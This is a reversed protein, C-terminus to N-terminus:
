RSQASPPPVEMPLGQSNGGRGVELEFPVGKGQLHRYMGAVHAMARGYKAAARMIQEADMVLKRDDLEVTKDRYQQLLDHRSSALDEWPLAGVKQEIETPSADHAADDVYEGPDITFFSFAAQVCADIDAPTKLHDADAGVPQQWGAEFTGWTANRMVDEPTRKTRTMERISQQAFIPAINGSVHQFARVHGPTAVGLRDGCGASTQLGLPKPALWPLLDQLARANVTNTDCRKLVYGDTYPEATGQFRDLVASEAPATLIMTVQANDRVLWM